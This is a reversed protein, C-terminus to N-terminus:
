VVCKVNCEEDYRRRLWASDVHRDCSVAQRGEWIGVIYTKPVMHACVSMNRVTGPRPLCQLWADGLLDHLQVVALVVL